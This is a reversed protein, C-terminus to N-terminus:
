NHRHLFQVTVPSKFPAGATFKLKGRCLKKGEVKSEFTPNGSGTLRNRQFLHPKTFAAAQGSNYKLFNIFNIKIYNMM